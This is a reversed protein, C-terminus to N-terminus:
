LSILCMLFYHKPMTKNPRDTSKNFGDLM